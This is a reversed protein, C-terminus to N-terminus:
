NDLTPEGRRAEALYKRLFGALLNASGGAPACSFVDSVMVLESADGDSVIRVTSEHVDCTRVTGRHHRVVKRKGRLFTAVSTARGDYVILCPGLTSLLGSVIAMVSVHNSGGFVFFYTLLFPPTGLMLIGILVVWHRASGFNAISVSDEDYGVVDAGADDLLPLFSKGSKEGLSSGSFRELIEWADVREVEDSGIRVPVSATAFGWDAPSCGHPLKITWQSDGLDVVMSRAGRKIVVFRSRYDALWILFFTPFAGLLLWSIPAGTKADCWHIIVPLMAMLLWLMTFWTAKAISPATIPFVIEDDTIRKVNFCRRLLAKDDGSLPTQAAEAPETM